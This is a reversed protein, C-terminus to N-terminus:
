SSTRLAALASTCATFSRRLPFSSGGSRPSCSARGFYVTLADPTIRLPGSQTRTWPSTQRSRRIGNARRVVVSLFACVSQLRPMLLQMTHERMLDSTHTWFAPGIAAISIVISLILGAELIKSDPQGRMMCRFRDFIHIICICAVALKLAGFFATLKILGIPGLNFLRGIAFVLQSRWVDELGYSPSTLIRL